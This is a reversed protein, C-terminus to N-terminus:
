ITANKDWFAIRQINYLLEQNNYNIESDNLEQNKLSSTTKGLRAYGQNCNNNNIPKVM